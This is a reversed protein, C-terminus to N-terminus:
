YGAVVLATKFLPFKPYADLLKNDVDRFRSFHSLLSKGIIQIDNDQPKSGQGIGSGPFVLFMVGSSTGGNRGSPLGLADALRSSVEGLNPKNKSDAFVSFYSRGNRVNISFCIDGLSLGTGHLHRPPLAVYPVKTADVYRRVDDESFFKDVLSTPSIYFDKEPQGPPNGSQIIPNGSARGNHTVIGWWNGPHGANALNDLAGPTGIPAYCRPAGDFDISVGCDYFFPDNPSANKLQWVPTVGVDRLKKFHSASLSNLM